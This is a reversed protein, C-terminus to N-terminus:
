CIRYCGKHDYIILVTLRSPGKRQEVLKRVDPNAASANAACIRGRGDLDKAVVHRALNKHRVTFCQTVVSQPAGRGVLHDGSDPLKSFSPLHAMGGDGVLQKSLSDYRAIDPGFHAAYKPSLPKLVAGSCSLAILIDFASRVIVDDSPM